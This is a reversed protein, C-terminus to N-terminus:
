KKIVALESYVYNILSKINYIKHRLIIRMDEMAVSIFMSRLKHHYNLRKNSKNEKVRMYNRTFQSIMIIDKFCLYSKNIQHNLQQNYSARAILENEYSIINNNKLIQSIESRKPKPRSKPMSSQSLPKPYDYDFYLLRLLNIIYNNQKRSQLIIEYSIYRNYDKLILNKSSTIISVMKNELDNKDLLINYIKIMDNTFSIYPIEVTFKYFSIPNNNLVYGYYKLLYRNTNHHVDFNYIFVYEDGKQFSQNISVGIYGKKNFDFSIQKNHIKNPNLIDSNINSYFSIDLLNNDEFEIYLYNIIWKNNKSINEEKFIKFQETTAFM